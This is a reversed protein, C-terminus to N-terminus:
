DDHKINLRSDDYFNSKVEDVILHDYSSQNSLFLRSLFNSILFLIVFLTLFLFSIILSLSAWGEVIKDNAIFSAITYSSLLLSSAGGFIGLKFILNILFSQNSDLIKTFKNISKFFSRKYKRPNLLEYKYVEMLIRRNGLFLFNLSLSSNQLVFFNMLSRSFIRFQSSNSPLVYQLKKLINTLFGRFLNYVFSNELNTGVGICIQKNNKALGIVLDKIKDLYKMQPDHIILYDGVSCKFILKYILNENIGSELSFLRINPYTNIKKVLFDYIKYNVVDLAIIIEYDTFNKELFKSVRSLDDIDSSKFDISPNFFYSISQIKNIM